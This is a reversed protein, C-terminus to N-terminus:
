EFTLFIIIKFLSTSKLRDQVIELAAKGVENLKIPEKDAM